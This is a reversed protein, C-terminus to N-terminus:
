YSTNDMAGFIFENLPISILQSIFDDEDWVRTLLTYENGTININYNHQDSYYTVLLYCNDECKKTNSSNFSLKNNYEDYQLYENSLKINKNCEPFTDFNSINENENINKIQSMLMGNLRKNNLLIEGEQGKYVKMYYYQCIENQPIFGFNLFNKQLYFSSSNNGSVKIIMTSNIHDIRPISIKYQVKSSNPKIIITEKYYIIKNIKEEGENCEIRFRTKEKIFFSVIIPNENNNHNYILNLNQINENFYFLVPEKENLVLEPPQADNRIEVSNIILPCEINKIEENISNILPNIIFSNPNYKSILTYFADYNFNSINYINDENGNSDTLYIKCELPYFHVLLDYVRYYTFQINTTKLNYLNLNYVRGSELRYNFIKNKSIFQKIKLNDYINGNDIDKCYLNSILVYLFFFKFKVKAKSLYEKM